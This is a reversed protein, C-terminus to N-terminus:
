PPTVDGLGHPGSAYPAAHVARLAHALADAFAMREAPSLWAGVTHVEGHSTLRIEEAQDAGAVEVRLWYPQLAVESGRGRHDFRRITLQERTLVVHEVARASRYNLRFAWYVLAVDLGLFGFVPWAGLAIFIMGSIFSLTGIAGMLLAFGHPSLSRYPTIVADFLVDPDQGDPRVAPAAPQPLRDPTESHRPPSM